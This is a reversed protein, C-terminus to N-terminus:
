GPHGLAGLFARFGDFMAPHPEREALAADVLACAAALGALEAANDLAAAAYPERLEGSFNGLQESLQDDTLPTLETQKM